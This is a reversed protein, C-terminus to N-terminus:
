SSIRQKLELLVDQDYKRYNPVFEERATELYQVFKTKFRETSFREANKRIEEPKFQHSHSEFYEVAQFLSEPNQDKFYVATPHPAFTLLGAEKNQSSSVALPNLVSM